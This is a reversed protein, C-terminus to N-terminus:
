RRSNTEITKLSEVPDAATHHTFYYPCGVCPHHDHEIQAVM